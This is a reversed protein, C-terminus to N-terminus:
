QLLEEFGQRRIRQHERGVIRREVAQVITQPEEDLVVLIM